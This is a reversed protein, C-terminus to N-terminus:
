SVGGKDEANDELTSSRRLRHRRLPRRPKLLWKRSCRTSLSRWESDSLVIRAHKFEREIEQKGTEINEERKERKFWQRIKSRAESTKVIKLWDRNPCGGEKKTLIEVIEGTKVKYDIPVM